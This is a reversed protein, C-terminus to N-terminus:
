EALGLRVGQQRCQELVVEALDVAGTAYTWEETLERVRAEAADLLVDADAASVNWATLRLDVGLQDPLYALSVPALESEVPGLISGLRAEAVGSTRLVRSVIMACGLRRELRPLVQEALLGEFEIPVGPLLIALGRPTDLWLGPATGLGNPLVEAGRPVLAQVRNSEDITRGARQWRQLLEQWVSDNFELELGL